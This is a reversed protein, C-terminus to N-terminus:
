ERGNQSRSKLAELYREAIMERTSSAPRIKTGYLFAMRPIGIREPADWLALILHERGSSDQPMESELKPFLKESFRFTLPVTDSHFVHGVIGNNEQAPIATACGLLFAAVTVIRTASRM